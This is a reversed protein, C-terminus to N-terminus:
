KGSQYTDLHKNISQLGTLQAKLREIKSYHAKLTEEALIKAYLSESVNGRATDKCTTVPEGKAKLRTIEVALNKDYDAATRAKDEILKEPRKGEEGLAIIARNIQSATELISM